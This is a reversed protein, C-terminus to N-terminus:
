IRKDEWRPLTLSIRSGKSDTPGHYKVVIRIQPTIDQKMTHEKKKHKM